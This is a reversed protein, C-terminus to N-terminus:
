LLPERECNQSEDWCPLEGLQMAGKIRLLEVGYDRLQDQGDSQRQEYGPYHERHLGWRLERM